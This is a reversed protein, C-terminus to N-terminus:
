YFESKHCVCVSVPGHSTGRVCLMARYFPLLLTVHDITVCPHDQWDCIWSYNRIIYRSMLLREPRCFRVFEVTYHKPSVGRNIGTNNLAGIGAPPFVNECGGVQMGGRRAVQDAFVVGVVSDICYRRTVFLMEYRLLSISPCVLAIDWPMACVPPMANGATMEGARTGAVLEGDIGCSIWCMVSEAVALLKVNFWSGLWLFHDDADWSPSLIKAIWSDTGSMSRTILIFTSPIVTLSVRVNWWWMETRTALLAREKTRFIMRAWPSLLFASYPVYCASTQDWLEQICARGSPSIELGVFPVPKLGDNRPGYPETIEGREELVKCLSLYTANRLFVTKRIWVVAVM